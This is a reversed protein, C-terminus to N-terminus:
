FPNYTGLINLYKYILHNICIEEEMYKKGDESYKVKQWIGNNEKSELLGKTILDIKYKPWIQLPTKFLSFRLKNRSSPNSVSRRGYSTGNSTHLM